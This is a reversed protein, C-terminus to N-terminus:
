YLKIEGNGLKRKSFAFLIRLMVFFMKTLFNGIKCFLNQENFLFFWYSFIINKTKWEIKIQWTENEEKNLKLPLSIFISFNRFGATIHLQKYFETFVRCVIAYLKAPKWLKEIKIETGKFNFLSSFSVKWILISYFFLNDKRISNKKLPCFKSKCFKFNELM